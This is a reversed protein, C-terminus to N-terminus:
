KLVYLKRDVACSKMNTQQTPDNLLKKNLM